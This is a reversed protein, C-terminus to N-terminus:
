QFSLMAVGSSIVVIATIKRTVGQPATDQSYLTPFLRAAIFGLAVVFIPHASVVVSVLAAGGGVALAATFFIYGAVDFLNTFGFVGYQRPTLIKLDDIIIRRWTPVLLLLVGGLAYGAFNLALVSALQNTHLLDDSILTSLAGFLASILLVAVYKVNGLGQMTKRSVCLVLIGAMILTFGILQWFTPIAHFFLVSIILVFLPESQHIPIVIAVDMDELCYSYAFYQLFIFLGSALNLTATTLDVPKLPFTSYIFVTIVINGVSLLFIFSIFHSTIHTIAYKDILNSLSWMFPALLSLYLWTM